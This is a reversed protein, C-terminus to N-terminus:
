RSEENYPQGLDSPAHINWGFVALSVLTVVYPLAVFFQYPLTSGLAQLRLQLAQVTGFLLAAVVAFAPNWRALITVALCIFGRGASMNETFTGVIGCSLFAGGIGAMFGCFLSGEYRVRRVRIGSAQAAKPNEGTAEIQLGFKTRRLVFLVLFAAVLSLYVLMNQHFLIEGLWPIKSLGPIEITPLIEVKAKNTSVGFIARYLFNTFGIAFINFMIGVVSQDQRRSVCWFAILLAGLMGSIGGALIGLTLSGTYYAVIFSILAATLMQGELGINLVGTKESVVEGVSGLILPVSMRIGATLLPILFAATLIENM